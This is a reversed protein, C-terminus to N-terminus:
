KKMLNKFGEQEFHHDHTLAESIKKNKMVNMSVCDTLSYKKDTRNKYLELGKLFSDRSQPVVKVNPNDLIAHVMNAAIKRLVAGGKSLSTLFEALVEDTTVTIFEGLDEEAQKAGKAYPDEPKVIAVWYLTDAFVEKM